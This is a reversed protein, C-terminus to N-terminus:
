YFFVTYYKLQQLVCGHTCSLCLYICTFISIPKFVAIYYTNQPTSIQGETKQGEDGRSECRPTSVIILGRGCWDFLGIHRSALCLHTALIKPKRSVVTVNVSMGHVRKLFANQVNTLFIPTAVIPFRCSVLSLLLENVCDVCSRCFQKTMGPGRANERPPYPPIPSLDRRM